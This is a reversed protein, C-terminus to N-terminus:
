KAISIELHTTPDVCGWIPLALDIDGFSIAVLHRHHWKFSAKDATGCCQCSTAVSHGDFNNLTESRAALHGVQFHDM